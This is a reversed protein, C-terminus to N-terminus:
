AEAMRYTPVPRAPRFHESHEFTLELQDEEGAAERLARTVIEALMGPDGEARLNIILEGSELDASLSHSMFPSSDGRVLNIAGIDGGDGDPTLTMKLHAIEIDLRRLQRQLTDM